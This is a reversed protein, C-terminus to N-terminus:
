DSYQLLHALRIQELKDAFGGDRSAMQSYPIDKVVIGDVSSGTNVLKRIVDEMAALVTEGQRVCLLTSDTGSAMILSESANAVPPLVILVLSYHTELMDLLERFRGDGLLEHPAVDLQGASLLHLNPERENTVVAEGFGKRLSLVDALGIGTEENGFLLHLRGVRMDADILLVPGSKMQAMAVAIQVALFTKGDDGAVSAISLTKCRSFPDSLLLHTCWNHVSEKYRAMKKRFSAGHVWSVPPEMIEGILISPMARRVQSVHYLRPKIREIAIGLFLPLCFMMASGAGIVMIQKIVNPAAPTSARRRLQIQNPAYREAQTVVMREQLQDLTKNIRDLESQDFTSNVIETSRKTSKTVQEKYKERLSDARIEMERIQMELQYRQMELDAQVALQISQGTSGQAGEVMDKLRKEAETIQADLHEIRTDNPRVLVRKMSDRREKLENIKSNLAQLVPDRQMAQLLMSQPINSGSSSIQEDLMKKKAQLGVLNAETLLVDREISEGMAIGGSMGENSASAGQSAAQERRRRITEELRNANAKQRQFEANLQTHTNRQSEDNQAQYNEFYADVVANVIKEAEDPLKTAISVGLYESKQVLGVSLRKQIWGIKDKERAICPLKVVDANELVKELVIESTMVARQTNVLETYKIQETDTYIFKPKSSYIQILARAEYQVPFALFLVGATLLSLVVASPLAWKWNRKLGSFVLFVLIQPTMRVSEVPDIIPASKPPKQHHLLEVESGYPPQFHNNGAQSPYTEQQYGQQPYGQQQPYNGPLPYGGDQPGYQGGDAFPVDPGIGSVYGQGPVYEGQGPFNQPPVPEQPVNDGAFQGGSVPQNAEFSGENNQPM